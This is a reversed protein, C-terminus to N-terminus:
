AVGERDKVLERLQGMLKENQEVAANRAAKYHSASEWIDDKQKELQKIRRADSDPFLAGVWAALACSLTLFGISGLWGFTPYGIAAVSHCEFGALLLAVSRALKWKMTM